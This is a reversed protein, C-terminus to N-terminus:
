TTWKEIKTPWTDLAVRLPVIVLMKHFEFSDFLLDVLATLTISTKGLGIDLLVTCASNTKIYEAAYSQYDHPTYRIM